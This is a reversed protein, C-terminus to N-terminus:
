AGAGDTAPQSFQVLAQLDAPRVFTRRGAKWRRLRGRSLWARICAESVKLLSAAEPISFLGSLDVENM